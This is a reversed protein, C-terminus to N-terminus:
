RRDDASASVPLELETRGVAAEVTRAGRLGPALARVTWPGPAAHFRFRGTAATVVEAVFEETADLLRVYAGAVPAGNQVVVGDIVTAGAPVGPDSGVAPLDAQNPAGCSAASV